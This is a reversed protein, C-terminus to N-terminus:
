RREGGDGGSAAMVEEMAVARVAERAVERAM